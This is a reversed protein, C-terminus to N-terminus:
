DALPSTDIPGAIRAGRTITTPYNPPRAWTAIADAVERAILTM